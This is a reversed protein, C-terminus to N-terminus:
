INVLEWNKVSLYLGISTLSGNITAQGTLTHNYPHAEFHGFHSVPTHQIMSGGIQGLPAAAIGVGSGFGTTANYFNVAVTGSDGYLDLESDISAIVSGALAPCDLTVEFATGPSGLPITTSYCLIPTVWYTHRGLMDGAFMKFDRIGGYTVVDYYVAHILRFKTYGATIVASTALLNAATSSTDYGFDTKNGNANTLAFFNYWTGNTLVIGTPFGGLGSGETWNSTILKTFASNNHIINVTNSLDRAAGAGITLRDTSRSCQFGSIYRYGLPSTIASTSEGYESKIIWSTSTAKFTYLRYQTTIVINTSGNILQGGQGQITVSYSSSDSKAMSVEFDAGVGGSGAVPLTIIKAGATADVVIVENENSLTLTTDATVSRVFGRGGLNIIKWTSGNTIICVYENLNNLSVSSLTDIKEGSAPTITVNNSTTDTKKVIIKFGSGATAATPLNILFAGSTADAFITRNKDTSLVTYTTTAAIVTGATSNLDNVSATLGTWDRLDYLNINDVTWIPAAPPTTDGVPALVVKYSGDGWMDCSGSADLLIPNDNATAKAQDKWTTKATTTGATYTFVQTGAPYPVGDSDIFQLRPTPFLIAM